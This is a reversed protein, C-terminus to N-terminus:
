IPFLSEGSEVHIGTLTIKGNINLFRFEVYFQHKIPSDIKNIYGIIKEEGPVLTAEGFIGKYTGGSSILNSRIDIAKLSAAIKDLEAKSLSNLTGLETKSFERISDEKYSGIPSVNKSVIEKFKALGAEPDSYYLGYANFVEIALPKLYASKLGSHATSSLVLPEHSIAVAEFEDITSYFPNFSLVGRKIVKNSKLSPKLPDFKYDKLSTPVVDPNYVRVLLDNKNGKESAITLYQTRKLDYTKMSYWAYVPDSDSVLVSEIMSRIIGRGFKDALINDLERIREEAFESVDLYVQAEIKESVNKEIYLYYQKTLDITSGGPSVGERDVWNEEEYARFFNIRAWSAKEEESPGNDTMTILGTAKDYKVTYNLAQGIYVAPVYISGNKNIPATDMQYVKYNSAYYNKGVKFIIGWYDIGTQVSNPDIEKPVLFTAEKKDSDWALKINLAKQVLSLPLQLRNSSDVFPAPNNIEIKKGDVELSFKTAASAISIASTCILCFMVLISILKKM